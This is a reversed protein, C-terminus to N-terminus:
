GDSVAVVTPMSQLEEDRAADALAGLEAPTQAFGNPHSELAERRIKRCLATDDLALRRITM